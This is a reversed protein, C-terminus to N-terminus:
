IPMREEIQNSEAVRIGLEIKQCGRGQTIKEKNRKKLFEDGEAPLCASILLTKWILGELVTEFRPHNRDM